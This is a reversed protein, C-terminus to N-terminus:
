RPAPADTGKAPMARQRQIEIAILKHLALHDDWLHAAVQYAGAGLGGLIVFGLGLLVFRLRQKM